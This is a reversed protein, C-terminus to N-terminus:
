IWIWGFSVFELHGCLHGLFFNVSSGPRPVFPVSCRSCVPGFAFASPPECSCFRVASVLRGDFLCVM